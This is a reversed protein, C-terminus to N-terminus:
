GNCVKEQDFDVKVVTGKCIHSKLFELEEKLDNMQKKLLNNEAFLKKRMKDLTQTQKKVENELKIELPEEFFTLQVHM